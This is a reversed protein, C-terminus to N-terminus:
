RVLALGTTWGYAANSPYLTTIVAINRSCKIIIIAYIINSALYLILM